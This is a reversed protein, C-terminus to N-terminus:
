PPASAGREFWERARILKLDRKGDRLEVGATLLGYRVLLDGVKRTKSFRMRSLIELKGGKAQFSEVAVEGGAISLRGRATM